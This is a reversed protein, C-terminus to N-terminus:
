EFTDLYLKKKTGDEIFGPRCRAVKGDLDFVPHKLLQIGRTVRGPCTCDNVLPCLNM